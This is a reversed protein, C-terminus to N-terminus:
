LVRDDQILFLPLFYEQGKKLREIVISARRWLNFITAKMLIGSWGLTISDINRIRL